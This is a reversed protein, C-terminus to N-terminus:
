LTVSSGERPQAREWHAVWTVASRAALPEPVAASLFGDQKSFSGFCVEAQSGSVAAISGRQWASCPGIQVTELVKAEGRGEWREGGVAARLTGTGGDRVVGCLQQEQLLSSEGPRCLPLLLIQKLADKKTTESDRM